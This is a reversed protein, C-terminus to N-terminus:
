KKLNLRHLLNIVEGFGIFMIGSFFSSLIITGGYVWRLPNPDSLSPYEPDPTKLAVGVLIGILIGLVLTLYGITKLTESIGNTQTEHVSSKNMDTKNEGVELINDLESSM